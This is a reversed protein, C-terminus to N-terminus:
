LHVGFQAAVLVTLGYLAITLLCAGALAPWYEIGHRLMWPLAQFM